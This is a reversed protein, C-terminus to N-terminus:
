ESQIYVIHKVMHLSRRLFVFYKSYTADGTLCRLLFGLGSFPCMRDGGMVHGLRSVMLWPCAACTPQFPQPFINESPCTSTNRLHAQWNTARMHPFLQGIAGVLGEPWEKGQLLAKVSGGATPNKECTTLLSKRAAQLPGDVQCLISHLRSSHESPLQFCWPKAFSDFDLTEKQPWNSEECNM